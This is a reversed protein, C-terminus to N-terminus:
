GYPRARRAGARVPSGDRRAAGRARRLAALAAPHRHAPNVAEAVGSPAGLWPMLAGLRWLTDSLPAREAIISM